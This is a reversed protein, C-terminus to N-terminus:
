WCSLDVTIYARILHFSLLLVSPLLLHASLLHSPQVADGVWHVHTQAFKLLLHLVPFGPTSRDLPDCLTLCSQAIVVVFSCLIGCLMVSECASYQAFSTLCWLPCVTHNWKDATRCCDFRKEPSYCCNNQQPHFPTVAAAPSSFITEDPLRDSLNLAHSLPSLALASPCGQPIPHPRLYSPSEPHPAM